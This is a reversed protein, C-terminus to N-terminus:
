LAQHVLFSRQTPGLCARRMSVALLLSVRVRCMNHRALLMWSLQCICSTEFSLAPPPPPSAAYCKYAHQTCASICVHPALQERIASKRSNHAIFHSIRFEVVHIKSVFGVKAKESLMSHVIHFLVHARKNTEPNTSFLGCHVNSMSYGIHLACFCLESLKPPSYLARV